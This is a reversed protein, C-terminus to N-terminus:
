FIIGKVLVNEKLQLTPPLRNRRKTGTALYGRESLFFFIASYLRCNTKADSLLRRNYTEYNTTKVTDTILRVVLRMPFYAVRHSFESEFIVSFCLVYKIDEPNSGM